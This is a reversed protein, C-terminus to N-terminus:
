SRRRVAGGTACSLRRYGKMKAEILRTCCCVRCIRRRDCFSRNVQTQSGCSVFAREEEVVPTPTAPSNLHPSDATYAPDVKREIMDFVKIDRPIKGVELDVCIARLRKKEDSGVTLWIENEWILPSSWGEDPIAIKWRINTAEDFDVPLNESTSIGNRLPGRFQNRLGAHIPRRSGDTNGM